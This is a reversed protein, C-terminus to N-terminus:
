RSQRMHYLPQITDEVEMTVVMEEEEQLCEELLHHQVVLQLELLDVMKVSFNILYGFNNKLIFIM